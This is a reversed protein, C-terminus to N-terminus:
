KKSHKKYTSIFNKKLKWITQESSGNESGFLSMKIKIGSDKLIEFAETSPRHYGESHYTWDKKDELDNVWYNHPTTRRWQFLVSKEEILDNFAEGGIENELNKLVKLKQEDTPESINDKCSSYKWYPKYCGTLTRQGKLAQELGLDIHNVCSLNECYYKSKNM